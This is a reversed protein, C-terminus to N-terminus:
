ADTLHGVAGSHVAAAASAAPQMPRHRAFLVVTSLAPILWMPMYYLLDQFLAAVVLCLYACLLMQASVGYVQRGRVAMMFLRGLIMVQLFLFCAGAGWGLDSLVMIFTNHAGVEFGNFEETYKQTNGVGVGLPHQTAVELANRTFYFNGRKQEDETPNLSDTFIRARIPEAAASEMIFWTASTSALTAMALLWLKKRVRSRYLLILHYILLGVAAGVWASRTLTSLLQIFLITIVLLKLLLANRWLKPQYAEDVVWLLMLSTFIALVTTNYLGGFRASQFVPFFHPGLQWYEFLAGLAVASSALMGLLAAAFVRRMRAASDVFLNLLYFFLLGGVLRIAGNRVSDGLTPILAFLLGLWITVKISLPFRLSRFRICGLFAGLTLAVPTLIVVPDIGVFTVPLLGVLPVVLLDFLWRVDIRFPKM